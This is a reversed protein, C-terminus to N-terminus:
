LSISPGSLADPSFARPADLRRLAEYVAEFPDELSAEHLAQNYSGTLLWMPDIGFHRVLSIILSLTAYGRLGAQIDEADFRLKAAAEDISLRAGNLIEDIRSGVGARDPLYLM